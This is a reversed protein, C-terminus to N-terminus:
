CCSFTIIAFLDSFLIYSVQFGPSSSKSCVSAYLLRAQPHVRPVPFLRFIFFFFKNFWLFSTCYPHSGTFIIYYSFHLLCAHVPHRSCKQQLVILLLWSVSRVCGFRCLASRVCRRSLVSSSTLASRVYLRIFLVRARSRRGRVSAFLLLSVYMIYM